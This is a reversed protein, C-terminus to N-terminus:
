IYHTHTVVPYARNSYGSKVVNALFQYYLTPYGHKLALSDRIKPNEWVDFTGLWTDVCIIASAIGHAKLAGAM